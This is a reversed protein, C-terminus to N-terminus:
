RGVASRLEEALIRAKEALTCARQLDSAARAAEADKLFKEAAVVQEAQPGTLARGHVAALAETARDTDTRFRSLLAATEEASLRETLIPPPSPAATLTDPAATVPPPTAPRSAPRSEGKGSPQGSPGAPQGGSTPAALTDVAVGSPAPEIEPRAPGRFYSCGSLLFLLGLLPGIPLPPRRM